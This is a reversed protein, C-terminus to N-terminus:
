GPSDPTLRRALQTRSHIGLKAYINSLHGDVTKTSVVLAAAVEKNSRGEAVLEAVRRETPTLEGKQSPARGGIRDLEARARAAWLPAGLSEFSTLAEQLTERAARRRRERRQLEGLALLTRARELPVPRRQHLRLAEELSAVGEELLGSGALVLGRCRALVPATGPRVVAHRRADVEALLARARDLEEQSVLADVLDGWFPYTVWYPGTLALEVLGALHTLADEYRQESVALFGLAIRPRVAFLESHIATTKTLSDEASALATAADGTHAAVLARCYPSLWLAYLNDSQEALEGGEEAYALATEYNGARCELETLPWHLWTRSWEDGDDLARGHQQVLLRRAGDLEDNALLWWGLWTASSEYADFGGLDRELDSTRRLLDPGATGAHLRGALSLALVILAVDGTRQALDVTVQARERAAEFEQAHMLAHCLQFLLPVQQSPYGEAEALAEEVLARYDALDAVARAKASLAEARLAGAPLTALLPEV